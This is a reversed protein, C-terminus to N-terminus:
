KPAMSCSDLIYGLLRRPSPAEVMAPRRQSIPVAEKISLKPPPFQTADPTDCYQLFDRGRRDPYFALCDQFIFGQIGREPRCLPCPRAGPMIAHMGLKGDAVSPLFGPLRVYVPCRPTVADACDGFADSKRSQRLFVTFANDISPAQSQFIALLGQEAVADDIGWSISRMLVVSVCNIVIRLDSAPTGAWTRGRSPRPDQPICGAPSDVGRVIHNLGIFNGIDQVFVM